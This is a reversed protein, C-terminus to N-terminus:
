QSFRRKPPIHKLQKNNSVSNRARQNQEGQHHLRYTGRFCRNNCSDCPTVGWFVANMITVLM